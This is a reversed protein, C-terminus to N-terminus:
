IKKNLLNKVEFKAKQLETYLMNDKPNVKLAAELESLNKTSKTLKKERIKKQNSAYNILWGRCTAKYAEWTTAFSEVSDSNTDFFKKTEKNILDVLSENQLLSNNIKWRSPRIHHLSPAFTLTLPCHDSYIMNKIESAWVNPLVDQTVWFADIRSYSKHPNSYFTYDRSNPNLLRSVDSLGM